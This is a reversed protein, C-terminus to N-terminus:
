RASSVGPGIILTKWWVCYNLDCSELVDVIEKINDLLGVCM